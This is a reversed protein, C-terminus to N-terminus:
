PAVYSYRICGIQRRGVRLEGTFISNEALPISHTQVSGIVTCNHFRVSAHALPWNPAGVAERQDSTADLISDRLEIRVPDAAPEDQFVQISGLVSREIRILADTLYGELSPEAPRRPNCGADLGWGPVLTCSVLEVRQLPGEVHVARGVILLGDLRVCGGPAPE